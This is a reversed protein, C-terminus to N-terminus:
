HHKGFYIKLAQGRIVYLHTHQTEETPLNEGQKHLGQVNDETKSVTSKHQSKSHVFYFFDIIICSFIFVFSQRVLFDLYKPDFLLSIM